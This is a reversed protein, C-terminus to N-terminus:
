SVEEPEVWLSAFPSGDVTRLEVQLRFAGPFEEDRTPRIEDPWVPAHLYVAHATSADDQDFLFDFAESSARIEELEALVADLEEELVRLTLSAIRDTRIVYSEPVGAASVASGGVGGSRPEWPLMPLELLFDPEYERQIAPRWPLNM